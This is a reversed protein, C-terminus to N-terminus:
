AREFWTAGACPFESVVIPLRFASVAAFQPQLKVECDRDSCSHVRYLLTNGYERSKVPDIGTLWTFGSNLPPISVRAFEVTQL